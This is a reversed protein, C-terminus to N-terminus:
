RGLNPRNGYVFLQTPPPPSAKFIKYMCLRASQLCRENKALLCAHICVHMCQTHTQMCVYKQTSRLLLVKQLCLSNGNKGTYFYKLVMTNHIM